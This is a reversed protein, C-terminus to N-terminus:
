CENQAKSSNKRKRSSVFLKNAGIVIIPVVVLGLIQFILTASFKIAYPDSYSQQIKGLEAVTFGSEKVWNLFNPENLDRIRINNDHKVVYDILTNQERKELIEAVACRTGFRDVFFPKRGRKCTNIPFTGTKAYRKLIEISEERNKQIEAPLHSTNRSQLFTIVRHFHIRLRAREFKMLVRYFFPLKEIKTELHADM